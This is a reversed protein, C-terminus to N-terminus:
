DGLKRANIFQSLSEAFIDRDTNRNAYIIIYSKGGLTGLPHGLTHIIWDGKGSLPFVVGGGDLFPDRLDYECLARFAPSDLPKDLLQGLTVETKRAIIWELEGVGDLAERFDKEPDKVDTSFADLLKRSLGYADVLKKYVNHKWMFVERTRRGKGLQNLFIDNADGPTFSAKRSM